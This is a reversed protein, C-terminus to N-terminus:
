QTEIEPTKSKLQFRESALESTERGAVTIKFDKSHPMNSSLHGVLRGFLQLDLTTFVHPAFFRIVVHMSLLLSM